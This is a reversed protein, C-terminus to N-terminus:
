RVFWFILAAWFTLATLLTPGIWRGSREIVEAHDNDHFTRATAAHIVQATTFPRDIKRRHCYTGNNRIATLVVDEFASKLVPIRLSADCIDLRVTSFEDRGFNRSMLIIPSAPAVKRLEICRDIVQSLDADESVEFMILCPYDKPVAFFQIMERCRGTRIVAGGRENVWDSLFRVEDQDKICLLATWNELWREQERKKHPREARDQSSVRTSSQALADIKM